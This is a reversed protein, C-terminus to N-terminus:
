NFSLPASGVDPLSEFILLNAIRNWSWPNISLTQVSPEVNHSGFETLLASFGEAAQNLTLWLLLPDATPDSQSEVLRFM